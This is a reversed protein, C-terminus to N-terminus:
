VHLKASHLVHLALVAYEMREFGHQAMQRACVGLLHEATPKYTDPPLRQIFASLLKAGEHLDERAFTDATSVLLQLAEQDHIHKLLRHKLPMIEQSAATGADQRMQRLLRIFHSEHGIMRALSLALEMRAGDNELSDLIKFITDIAEHAQLNGLASCYAMQLGKDTEQQLRQHLVPVIERDKLTGLSRACHAQLSRYQSDLGARLAPLAHADGMRGLAWAAIVSLSIETGDVIHSLAEILRPNPKMRAIAIIAEFRVNFRPDALAELLEDVTLPSKTQGMRETMTVTHREDRARYYRMISELAFLPNGQIFMGAFEVVGLTSDGRVRHFMLLSLLPLIVGAILLPTFPDLQFFLLEGSLNESLDLVRGGIVQSLGGLIGIAAYYVAMYQARQATPVVSVFLLRGSGIVWAIGSAGQFFAIALAVPLSFDSARPMLLWGIPLLVKLLVGTLMVPKSGYRDASWGLFYTSLLAGVLNANQLLVVNSESLGVQQQMFLPLFSYLPGSGFTLLGFGALYFLLNRDKAAQLLDRYTIRPADEGKIAAGGPVHTYLWVSIFGAVAGIAFLIMFRDLGASLGLIFSAAAVSIIGVVSGFINNTASYKGRITDPVFEQVWPYYGTEGIARCLGFGATILTILLVTAEAGFQALAFPVLLLLTAVVTRLTWFRIYTRKYGIRAVVPAIFPAVIGMFPFLSLLFGIQTNNIQLANLFLVFASGFFTFNVFVTNVANASISWRLGRIKDATTPETSIATTTQEATTM